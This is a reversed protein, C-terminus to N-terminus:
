KCRDSFWYTNIDAVYCCLVVLSCLIVTFSTINNYKPAESTMRCVQAICIRNNNNNNLTFFIFVSQFNRCYTNRDNPGVVSFSVDM